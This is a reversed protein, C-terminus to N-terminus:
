EEVTPRLLQEPPTEQDAITARLLVDSQAISPEESGRVLIEEAPFIEATVPPAYASQAQQRIDKIGTWCIYASFTLGLLFLAILPILWYLAVQKQFLGVFGYIGGLLLVTAFVVQLYYENRKKLYEQRLKKRNPVKNM